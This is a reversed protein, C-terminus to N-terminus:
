HFKVVHILNNKKCIELVKLNVKIHCFAIQLKLWGCLSVKCIDMLIKCRFRSLIQISKEYYYGPGVKPKEPSRPSRTHTIESGSM